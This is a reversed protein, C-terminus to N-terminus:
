PDVSSGPAVDAGSGLIRDVQTLVRDTVDIVEAWVIAQSRDLVVAAGTERMLGAIIPTVLERFRREEGARGQGVARAKADQETRIRQVKEDFALALARFEAPELTDRQATLLLEEATLDGEIRENEAILSRGADAIRQDVRQGYASREFLTEYDLVLVPTRLIRAHDSATELRTQGVAATGFGTALAFALWLSLWRGARRM